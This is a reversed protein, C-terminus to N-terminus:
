APGGDGVSAIVAAGPVNQGDPLRLQGRWQWVVHKTAAGLVRSAAGRSPQGSWKLWCDLGTGQPWPGFAPGPSLLLKVRKM